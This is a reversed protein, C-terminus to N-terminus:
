GIRGVQTPYINAKMQFTDQWCKTENGKGEGGREERDLEHHVSHNAVSLRVVGGGDGNGCFLIEIFTFLQTVSTKIKDM